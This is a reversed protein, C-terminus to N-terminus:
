LVTKSNGKQQKLMKCKDHLESIQASLMREQQELSRQLAELEKDKAEIAEELQSIDFKYKDM